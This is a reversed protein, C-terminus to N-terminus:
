QLNLLRSFTPSSSLLQELIPFQQIIRQLFQLSQSSSSQQNMPTALSVAIECYDSSNEKNVIKVVGSFSQNQENPAVVSVNVTIPTGTPLDYGDQPDFTWSGWEPSSEIEWDLLSGSEGNNSVTFDGTVVGGPEVDTWSLSGDCDLDPILSSPECDFVTISFADIGAEVVSGANLDSAEFRVKVQSTPTVFDGVMFSYEKWGVPTPTQPGITEVLTWSTGNDNSVYIKFLDNNPDNGFNNTIGYPMISKLM